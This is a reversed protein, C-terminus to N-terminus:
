LRAFQVHMWDFDKARGLSVAGVGEWARWWAEYEPGAFVAKTHDWHLPNREADFDLAAGYAHTSWSSGGRKRRVNYCGDFRDLGLRKIEGPGYHALVARLVSLVAEAIREHVTITQLARGEYLLAYPPVISKRGLGPEGYFAQMEADTDRPWRNVPLAAVDPLEVGLQEAIARATVPGPEGDPRVGVKRQIEQWIQATENM